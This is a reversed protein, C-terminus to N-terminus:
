GKTTSHSRKIPFCNGQNQLEIQDLHACPPGHCTNCDQIWRKVLGFDVRPSCLAQMRINAEEESLATSMIDYIHRSYRPFHSLDSWSCVLTSHFGDIPTDFDNETMSISYRSRTEDQILLAHAHLQCVSCASTELGEMDIEFGIRPSGRPRLIIEWQVQACQECLGSGYSGSAVKAQSAAADDQRITSTSDTENM